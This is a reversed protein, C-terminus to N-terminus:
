NGSINGGRMFFAGLAKIYSIYIYVLGKESTSCLLWWSYDMM